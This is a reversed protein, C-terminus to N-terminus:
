LLKSFSLLYFKVFSLHGLVIPQMVELSVFTSQELFEFLKQMVELSM